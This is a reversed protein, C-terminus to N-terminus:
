VVTVYTITAQSRAIPLSQVIMLRHAIAIAADTASRTAPHEVPDDPDEEPPVPPVTVKASGAPVM